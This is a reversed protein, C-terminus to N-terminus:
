RFSDLSLSRKGGKRVPEADYGMENLSRAFEAAFGHFTYVKEPRCQRVADV